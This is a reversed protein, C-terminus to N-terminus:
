AAGSVCACSGPSCGSTMVSVCKQGPDLASAAVVRYLDPPATTSALPHALVERIATSM